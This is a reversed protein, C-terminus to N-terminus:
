KNPFIEPNTHPHSQKSTVPLWVRVFSVKASVSAMLNFEEENTPQTLRENEAKKGAKRRSMAM